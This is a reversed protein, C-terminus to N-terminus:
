ATPIGATSSIFYYVTGLRFIPLPLLNFWKGAIPYDDHHFQHFRTLVVYYSFGNWLALVMDCNDVMWENRLQMKYAAYDGNSVTVVEAARKILYKYNHQLEESWVSEQGSFPIAAVFPIKELIAAQAIAQDWGLAMGSIIKNPKVQDLIFRAFGLLRLNALLEYGDLKDPRHGTGAIIMFKSRTTPIPGM